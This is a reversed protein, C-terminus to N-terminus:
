QDWGPEQRSMMRELALLHAQAYVDVTRRFEAATEKAVNDGIEALTAHTSLALVQVQAARELYYLDDFARAVSPGTVVVGHSRLFLIDSNGIAAAMREGESQAVALGGYGGAEDDYAVRGLFRLANQHCNALRLSATTALATAYPMHTHMVCLADARTRHLSSHIQFATIEVGGDGALVRGEEDVLLLDRPRIESFHVGFPNILYYGTDPLALSFHNCTGEHFGLRAAWRLALALERRGKMEIDSNTM